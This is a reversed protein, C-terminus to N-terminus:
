WKMSIKESFKRCRLTCANQCDLLDGSSPIGSKALRVFLVVPAYFGFSWLFPVRQSTELDFSWPGKKKKGWLHIQHRQQAFPPIGLEDPFVLHSTKKKFRKKKLDARFQHPTWFLYHTTQLWILGLDPPDSLCIAFLDALISPGMGLHGAGLNSFLDSTFWWPLSNPCFFGRLIPTLFSFFM